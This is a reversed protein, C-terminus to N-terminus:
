VLVAPGRSSPIESIEVTAGRARLIEVFEHGGPLRVNEERSNGALGALVVLRASRRVAARCVGSAGGTGAHGCFGGIAEIDYGVHSILAVDAIDTLAPNDSPWRDDRLEVNTIGHEIQLSSFEERMAPSPEIAIVRQVRLAMALSFRGAGAGVDLWVDDAEAIASLMELATDDTRHPDARFSPALPRYHDGGDGEERLREAQERNGAVRESWEGILEAASRGDQRGYM